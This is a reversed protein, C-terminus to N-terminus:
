QVPSLLPIFMGSAAEPLSHALGMFASSGLVLELTTVRGGVGPPPPTDWLGLGWGWGLSPGGLFEGGREESLLTQRTRVKEWSPFKM